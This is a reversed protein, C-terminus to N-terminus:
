LPVLQDAGWDTSAPPCSVDIEHGVLVNQPAMSLWPFRKDNTSPVHLVVARLGPAKPAADM